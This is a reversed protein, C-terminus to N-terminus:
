SFLKCTSRVLHEHPGSKAEMTILRLTSNLDSKSTFGHVIIVPAFLKNLNTNVLVEANINSLRCLSPHNFCYAHPIIDIYPLYHKPKCSTKHFVTLKFM